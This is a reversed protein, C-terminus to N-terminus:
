LTNKVKARNFTKNINIEDVDNKIFMGIQNRKSYYKGKCIVKMMDALKSGCYQQASRQLRVNATVLQIFLALFLVNLYLNIKM